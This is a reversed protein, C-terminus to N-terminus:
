ATAKTKRASLGALVALVVLLVDRALLVAILQPNLNLLELYRLPFIYYTLMGIVVFVFLIPYRWRNFILPVFPILWMLYQPSLVKSTILLVTTVLLSYSGIRLFQDKGPKMQEYIFWYSIVMFFILLYTSLKALIDALNGTLNWSGFNFVLNVEILGNQSAALLISSYVSEIQLGREAHYSILSRVAEQGLAFFPIVVVLCIAAFTIVGSWALKYQRNRIYSILFIPAIVVPFVKVLTGAALLGWSLKHKGTWFYYIAMLSLIAPFIDYQQAAIPGVALICVTYISLMKWPATGMRLAIKYFVFLGVLVFVLVEVQYIAAYLPYTPAVLRPLIFFLLALPPYEFNFDRYPVLGEFVKSAYNFYLSNASYPTKYYTQYILFFIIILALVFLMLQLEPSPWNKNNHTVTTNGRNNSSSTKM